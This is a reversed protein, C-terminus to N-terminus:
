NRTRSMTVFKPHQSVATKSLTRFPTTTAMQYKPLDNSTTLIARLSTLSTRRPVNHRLAYKNLAARKMGYIDEIQKANYWDKLDYQVLLEAFHVDVDKKKWFTRRGEIIQPIGFQECRRFVTRKSIKFKEM